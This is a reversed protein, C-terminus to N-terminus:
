ALRAEASIGCPAVPRIPQRVTSARAPRTGAAPGVSRKFEPPLGRSKTVLGTEPRGAAATEASSAVAADCTASFVDNWGASAWKKYNLLSTAPGRAVCGAECAGVGRWRARGTSLTGNPTPPDPGRWATPATPVFRRLVSGTRASRRARIGGVECYPEPDGPEVGSRACPPLRSPNRETRARVDRPCRRGCPGRRRAGCVPWRRIERTSPSRATVSSPGSTRVPHFWHPAFGHLM